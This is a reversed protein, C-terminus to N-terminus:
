LPERHHAYAKEQFTAVVCDDETTGFLGCHYSLEKLVDVPPTLGGRGGERDHSISEVDKQSEPM